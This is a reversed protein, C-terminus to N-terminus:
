GTAGFVSSGFVTSMANGIAAAAQRAVRGGISCCVLKVVIEIVKLNLYNRIAAAQLRQGAVALTLVRTNEISRRVTCRLPIFAAPTNSGAIQFSCL